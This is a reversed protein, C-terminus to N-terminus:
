ETAVSSFIPEDNLINGDIRLKEIEEEDPEREDESNEFSSFEAPFFEEEIENEFDDEM